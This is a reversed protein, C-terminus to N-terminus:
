DFARQWYAGTHDIIRIPEVISHARRYDLIARRCAETSGYDDVVVYGGPSLKPYLHDLADMTSAYLDGDLRLVALEEIPATPLTDSFWGVLFEVQDDLLGYREFNAKVEDLSVAIGPDGLCPYVTDIEHEGTPEPFGAFSDAVWVKRNDVGYARLVARMFIVSGGRWVGTEILDGPVDRDLVDEICRHLQDLRCLGIMTEASPPRDRGFERAFLDAEEHRMLALGRPELVRGIARAIARHARTRGILPRYSPELDYRTLVRKLLDLYLHATGQGDKPTPV